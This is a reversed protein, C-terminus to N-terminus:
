DLTASHPQGGQTWYLTSGALALSGPAIEAGTALVRSGTKDVAHVQYTGNEADTRVIWAVSGDGKVVLAVAPGIGIQGPKPKVATGTPVKHLMRGTVLDRVVVFEESIYYPSTHSETYAVATGALTPMLVGSVEEPRQESLPLPAIGIVRSRGTKYVCGYVNLTTPESLVEPADYVEAQSDALLLRSRARGCKPVTKRSAHAASTGTPTLALALIVLTITSATRRM